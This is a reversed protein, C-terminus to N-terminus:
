RSTSDYRYCYSRYYNRNKIFENPYGLADGVALGFLYGKFKDFSINM